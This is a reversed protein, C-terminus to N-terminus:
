TYFNNELINTISFMPVDLFFPFILDATPETVQSLLKKLDRSWKPQFLELTLLKYIYPLM